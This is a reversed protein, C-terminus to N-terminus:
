FELSPIVPRRVIESEVRYDHFGADALIQRWPQVFNQNCYYIGVIGNQAAYEVLAEEVRERIDDRDDWNDIMDSLVFLASRTKGNCISPDGLVYELAALMGAHIRSSSPEAKDRLFEYFDEPTPFDKRLEMPKGDWLLPTENGSLQCIIIRNDTGISRRFMGDAIQMAFHYAAGGEHMVEEVSGSLDLMLVTVFEPQGSYGDVMRTETMDRRECGVTFVLMAVCIRLEKM